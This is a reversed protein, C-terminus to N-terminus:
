PAAYALDGGLRQFKRLLVIHAVAGLAALLSGALFVYSYDHGMRQVFRGMIPPVIMLAIGSCVGAASALEAFRPPPLLRQSLSATGTIYCGSIVTHCAMAAFFLPVTRGLCFALAAIVAYLVSFLVGLRLPHFRDALIGLPYSLVLSILYGLALCKGFLDDSMGVSRAHLVMFTNVPVFTVLGFTITAFFWLYYPNSFCDNLYMLLWGLAGYARDGEPIPPPPPYQGEKVGLCMLTIGTGYLLGLVAFLLQFHQDAKGMVWFNFIIAVGLGVLRFLGFFRGVLVAPVVDNILAGFLANTIITAIELVTWFVAFTAIRCTSETAFHLGLHAYLWHGVNPSSALGLMAIVIFPAPFLIFPIRRGWRSRYRDSKVGISPGLLLGIAAPISGILLGVLWDPAAFRRLTLQALPFITREKVNWAFDGGLLWCFLMALGAASYTLTGVSWRKTLTANGAVSGDGSM